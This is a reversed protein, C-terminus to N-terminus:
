ATLPGNGNQVTQADAYENESDDSLDLDSICYALGSKTQGFNPASTKTISYKYLSERSSPSASNGSIISRLDRLHTSNLNMKSSTNSRATSYQFLSGNGASGAASRPLSDYPLVISSSSHNLISDTATTNQSLLMKPPTRIVVPSKEPSAEEYGAAHLWTKLEPNAILQAILERSSLGLSTEKVATDDQTIAPFEKYWLGAEVLAHTKSAATQSLEQLNYVRAIEAIILWNLSFKFDEPSAFWESIFNLYNVVFNTKMTHVLQILTKYIQANLDITSNTAITGILNLLLLLANDTKNSICSEYNPRSFLKSDAEFSYFKDILQFWKVQVGVKAEPSVFSPVNKFDITYFLFNFVSIRYPSRKYDILSDGHVSQFIGEINSIFIDSIEVFESAQTFSENTNMIQYYIKQVEELMDNIQDNYYIHTGLSRVIEIYGNNLSTPHRSIVAERQFRLIDSLIEKVPLGVMNVDESSLLNSILYAITERQAPDKSTNLDLIFMSVIRYRLEIHTKKACAEILRNFWSVERPHEIIYKVLAKTTLDVQKKANTDFFSKLANIALEEISKKKDRNEPGTLTKMLRLSNDGKDTKDLIVIICKEILKANEFNSVNPDVYKSVVTTSDLSLKSWEYDRSNAGLSIFNSVLRLFNRLLDVSSSLIQKQNQQIKNCFNSFISLGLECTSLDKIRVVQSLIDIIHSAMIGLDDSCKTILEQLIFLTVKIHGIRNHSVDLKTKKNLFIAVKELKTRRTSAYYLLYSLEANNPKTENLPLKKSPYCQLILKQHKPRFNPLLPM